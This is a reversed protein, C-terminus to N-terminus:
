VLLVSRLPETIVKIEDKCYLCGECHKRAERFTPKLEPKRSLMTPCAVFARHYARVLARKAQFLVSSVGDM